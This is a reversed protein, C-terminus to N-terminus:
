IEREVMEALRIPLSDRNERTVTLVELACAGLRDRAQAILGPRVVLLALAYGGTRLVDFASVWGEGRVLELPGVEDIVLLDCPIAQSLATSGWSLTQPNFRFRGQTVARGGESATTLRWHRGSRVDLVERVGHHALTLIGACAYGERRALAVAKRCVTSKGVGREGTLIIVRGM